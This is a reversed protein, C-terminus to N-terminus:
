PTVSTTERDFRVSGVDVVNRTQELRLTLARRAENPRGYNTIVTAQLTTPGTLTAASSGYYNAQVRYDGALARRVLYEEPGYGGTFDRSIMGGTATLAHSYFCKEGSPETVWLDMDSADTDWTLVIRLDADLTRRLRPDLRAAAPFGLDRELVALIRNAELLATVEIEPFRGDWEGLALEVLLEVAREYSGAVARDGRGRERLAHDARAELALALDRLSQPEEPRLRRVEEFLEIALDFAGLQQLRHAAVRLLRPERLELEVVSTLVRLALEREGARLFHDACDLYFAPSRGFVERQALYAAYAGAHGARELARLYPTDPDWPALVISAAAREDAGADAAAQKSESAVAFGHAVGSAAPAAPVRPRSGQGSAPAEAPRPTDDPVGIMGGVIGGPVGGEVGGVIEGELGEDAHELDTDHQGDRLREQAVKRRAELAKVEASFDREWWAVRRQWMEVVRELKRARRAKEDQERARSRELYARRMAPRSVPPEVGHELHQELTELVLLSTGPTVLGFRRGLRLLEDHNREPFLSLAAVRRQAWARAFLRGPLAEARRLPVHRTFVVPGGPLGYRLTLTAEGGLLRGSLSVRGGGVRGSEPLVDRVARRDYDVRQLIYSQAGLGALVEDDGVRGLDFFAGGGREALHAMLTQDARADSSWAFLPAGTDALLEQGLNRLGDSALLVLDAPRALRLGRLSTGGDCPEARLFALVAAADGGRVAFTRPPEPRDRFVVVDLELAGVRRLWSALLRLEREEGPQCRSLSRDWFLAVRRPHAARPPAPLAPFDDVGFYAQGDDDLEVRSSAAPVRPLAILLDEQPLFDRRRARAVYAPDFREFRFNALGGARVEPVAAVSAVEVELGFEELAQPFRLPLAYLAERAAGRGRTVLDSVYSVRVRRAGHAPIPFVRTRFNSGQVWEALGPDVGRRVEKEFAVRAEKQEVAVGEAMEGQVDLAYGSLTAGAPLPFVLEGALARAHDNRFTLTTSTEALYGRVRVRVDVHTVRLPEVPRDESIQALMVPPRAGGPLPAEPTDADEADLPPEPPRQPEAQQPALYALAALIAALALSRLPM